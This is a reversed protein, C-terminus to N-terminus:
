FDFRFCSVRKDIQCSGRNEKFRLVMVNRFKKTTVIKHWLTELTLRTPREEFPSLARFKRMFTGRAHRNYVADM